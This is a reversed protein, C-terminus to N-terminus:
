RITRRDRQWLFPPYREGRLENKRKELEKPSLNLRALREELRLREQAVQAEWDTDKEM